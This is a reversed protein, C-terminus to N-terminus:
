FSLAIGEQVSYSPTWGLLDATHATDLELSCFLREYLFERKLMRAGAKFLHPHVHFLRADCGMSVGMLRILEVTSIPSSDGVLFIQNTAAPHSVALYLLDVLNQIYVLTRRNYAASALPLPIGKQLCQSLSQLNGKAGPGYVLPPRIIVVELGTMRGFALLAAEAELKSLSYYDSPQPSDDFRFPRGNTTEGNVKITSVYVFRKVGCKFARDALALSSQVNVARFLAIPDSHTERMVHARGALHLICDINQLIPYWDDFADESPTLVYQINPTSSRPVRSTARISIGRDHAGSCVASGVFGSAGTVLVNMIDSQYNTM